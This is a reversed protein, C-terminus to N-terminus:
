IIIEKYNNYFFIQPYNTNLNNMNANIYKKAIIKDKKTINNGYFYVKFKPKKNTRTRHHIEGNRITFFPEVLSISREMIKKVKSSYTGYTLKSIIILEDSELITKGNNTAKDKYICNLPTKVWCSFCGICNNKIDSVIKDNKYINLYSIDELDHIIIRMNLVINFININNM